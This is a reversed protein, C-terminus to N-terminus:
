NAFAKKLPKWYYELWGQKVSRFEKDPVRSQRFNVRTGGKTRALSFTARSHHGKPWDSSRWTQTIRRDKILKLHEGSLDKGYARWAAGVTRGIKAPAGTLKAHRKSDLLTEYIDHPTAGRITATQRITKM